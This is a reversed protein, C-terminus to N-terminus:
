PIEDAVKRPFTSTDSSSLRAGTGKVACRVHNVLMTRARVLVDRAKLTEFDTQAEETRHVVPRRLLGLGSRAVQALTEADNRDTKRGSGSILALRNPNAVTVRLGLRELLRSVWPSHTGAEMLVSAGPHRAFEAQLAPATTDVVFREVVDGERQDIVCGHSRRDGLDLGLVVDRGTTAKKMAPGGRQAEHEGFGQLAGM